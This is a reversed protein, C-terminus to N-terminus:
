LLCKKCNFCLGWKKVTKPLPTRLNKKQITKLQQEEILSHRLKNSSWVDKILNIISDEDWGIEYTYFAFFLQRLNYGPNEVNLALKVCKPIPYDEFDGLDIDASVYDYDIVPDEEPWDFEDLNALKSGFYERSSNKYDNVERIWKDGNDLYKQNLPMAIKGGKLNKTFVIRHIRAIDGFSSSDAETSYKYQFNKISPKKNIPQKKDTLVFLQFGNGTFDIYHKLDDKLLKTHTTLMNEYANLPKEFSEGNIIEKKTTDFDFYVKDIFVSEYQPRPYNYEPNLNRFWYVNKYCNQLGNYQKILSVLEKNSSVTIRKPNAFETWM